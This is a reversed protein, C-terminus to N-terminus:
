RMQVPQLIKQNWGLNGLSELAARCLSSFEADSAIMDSIRQSYKEWKKIEKPTLDRGSRIEELEEIEECADIFFTFRENRKDIFKGDNLQYFGISKKAREKDNVSLFNNPNDHIKGDFYGSVVKYQLLTTDRFVTPDLLLPAENGISLPDTHTPQYQTARDGAVLPFYTGKGQVEENRIDTKRVNVVSSAVRYNRWDFALWWYGNHDEKAVKNKPRFHELQAENYSLVEESYWCKKGGHRWFYERVDSWSKANDNIFKKREESTKDKLTLLKGECDQLWDDSLDGRLKNLNIPIM